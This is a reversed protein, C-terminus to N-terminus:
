MNCVHVHVYMDSKKILVNFGEELASVIPHHRKGTNHRLDAVLNHGELLETHVPLVLGSLNPLFDRSKLGSFTNNVRGGTKM